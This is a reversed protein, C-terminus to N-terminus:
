IYVLTHVQNDVETQAMFIPAHPPGEVAVIELKVGHKYLNLLQIGSKSTLPSGEDLSMKFKKFEPGEESDGLTRKKAIFCFYTLKFYCFM